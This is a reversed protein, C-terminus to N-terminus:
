ILKIPKWQVRGFGKELIVRAVRNSILFERYAFAGSGFWKYTLQFDVDTVLAQREIHMYGRNHYNYKTIGCVSCLGM